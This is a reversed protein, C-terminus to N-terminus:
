RPRNWSPKLMPHGRARDIMEDLGGMFQPLLSKSGCTHHLKLSEFLEHSARKNKLKVANINTIKKRDNLICTGFHTSFEVYRILTNHM